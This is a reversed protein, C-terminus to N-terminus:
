RDANSPEETRTAYLLSPLAYPPRDLVRRGRHALRELVRRVDVNAVDLPLARLLRAATTGAKAAAPAFPIAITVAVSARTLAVLLSRRGVSTSTETGLVWDDEIAQDANALLDIGVHEATLGQAAHVTRVDIIRKHRNLRLDRAAMWITDRVVRYPTLVLLPGNILAGEDQLSQALGVWLMGHVFARAHAMNGLTALLPATDLVSVRGGLVTPAARRPAPVSTIRSTEPWGHSVVTAIEPPLRHSELLVADTSRRMDHQLRRVAGCRALASELLLGDPDSKKVVPPLQWPDGAIVTCTAPFTAMGLFAPAGVMSSEDMILLDPARDCNPLRRMAMAITTTAIRGSQDVLDHQSDALVREATVATAWMARRLVAEHLVDAAANTPAVCLVRRAHSAAYVAAAALVETKGSGPAGLLTTVRGRLIRWAARRQADSLGPLVNKAPVPLNLGLTSTGDGGLLTRLLHHLPHEAGAAMFAKCLRELRDHRFQTMRAEDPYLSVVSEPVPERTFLLWRHGASDYEAVASTSVPDFYVSVNRRMLGRPVNYATLLRPAKPDWQVQLGEVIPKSDEERAAALEVAHARLLAELYTQMEDTRM